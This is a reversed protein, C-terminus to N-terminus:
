TEVREGIREADPDAFDTYNEEIFQGLLSVDNEGAFAKQDSIVTDKGCTEKIQQVPHVNYGLAIFSWAIDSLTQLLELAQEETLDLGDLHHVYKVLDITVASSTVQSTALIKPKPQDRNGDADKSKSM